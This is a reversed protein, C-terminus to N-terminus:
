SDFQPVSNLLKKTYDHKPHKLITATPGIEIIKGQYMVAVRDSIQEIVALDHSIFLLAFQRQRQLDSLLQLIDAQIRVDLASVAEDCILVRPQTMLARAIALRQRQGGSFANPYRFRAEPDIRVAELAQLLRQEREEQSVEPQHIRLPELLTQEISLAPNLSTYPDQFVLQIEPRVRRLQEPEMDLLSQGDYEVTGGAADVLRLISRGLTTKGSGSEGVLGLTKGPYLELSVGDVARLQKKQLLFTPIRFETRLQHVRLIPPADSANESRTPVNGLRPVAALLQRAYESQPNNFLQERTGEEVLRGEKLLLIRDAMQHVVGLDHSIFLIATNFRVVLDQLLDLVARQVTVDLATTPEDAILLAPETCMAAAIMVRQRQGGSLQHPYARAIRHADTLQVRELWELMKRHAVKPSLGAHHQLVEQVQAGCRITPNLAALPEQFIMGIRNGRYKNLAREPLQLLDVASNGDESWRVRGAQMATRPRVLGLLSLATVSKGSGSEGVLALIEGARIAFSLDDVAKIKGDFCVSLRDVTLM